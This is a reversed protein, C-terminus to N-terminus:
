NAKTAIFNTEYIDWSADGRIEDGKVRGSVKVPAEYGAKDAYVEGILELLGNKLTGKIAIGATEATVESGSVKMTVPLELVGDPMEFAFKWKGAVDGGSAVGASALLLGIVLWNKM